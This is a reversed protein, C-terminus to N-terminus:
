NLNRETKKNKKDIKQPNKASATSHTKHKKIKIKCLTFFFSNLESFKFHMSICFVFVFFIYIYKEFLLWLVLVHFFPIFLNCQILM